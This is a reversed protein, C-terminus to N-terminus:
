FIRREIRLPNDNTVELVLHIKVRIQDFTLDTTFKFHRLLHALTIKASIMAYKMGICNRPGGSFPIYSFSPRKAVNEPLFRDPDFRDPDGWIKPNRHMRMINIFVLTNKPIIGKPLQIDDTTKRGIFPVPPLIRHSEKIVRETYKMKALHCATVDCDATEFISRLEEVVMDQHNQNIALMLLVSFVTTSLTDTGAFIVLRLQDMLNDHNFMGDEELHICKELVNKAAKKNMKDSGGVNLTNRHKLENKKTIYGYEIFSNGMKLPHREERGVKSISYMFDWRLWFRTARYQISEMIQKFIAYFFDGRELQMNLETGMTTKTISDMTCIFIPRYFDVAENLHPEMKTLLIHAKENLLPVYNQLTRVDFVSNLARRHPKWIERDTAIISSKCHLHNYFYPKNLCREDTLVIEVDHPECIGVALFPGFWSQIPSTKVEEYIDLIIDIIQDNSKGFFRGAVGLVPLQKPSVFNTMKRKIFWKRIEGCIIVSFLVFSALLIM